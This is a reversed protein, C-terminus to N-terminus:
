YGAKSGTRGKFTYDAYQKIRAAYEYGLNLDMQPGNFAM